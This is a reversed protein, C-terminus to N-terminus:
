RRASEWSHAVHSRFKHSQTTLEALRATNKTQRVRDELKRERSPVSPQSGFNGFSDTCRCCCHGWYPLISIPDSPIQFRTLWWRVSFGPPCELCRQMDWAAQTYNNCIWCGRGPFRGPGLQSTDQQRSLFQVCTKTKRLWSTQINLRNIFRMIAAGMHSKRLSVCKESTFSQWASRLKVDISLQSESTWSDPITGLWRNAKPTHSVQKHTHGASQSSRAMLFSLLGRLLM